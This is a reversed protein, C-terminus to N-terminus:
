YSVSYIPQSIYDPAIAIALRAKNKDELLQLRQLRVENIRFEDAVELALLSILARASREPIDDTSGWDVLHLTLLEQYYSTYAATILTVDDSDPTSGSALKGLKELTRTALETITM